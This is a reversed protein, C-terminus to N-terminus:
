LKYSVEEGAEASIEAKWREREGAGICAAGRITATAANTCDQVNTSHARAASNCRHMRTCATRSSSVHMMAQFRLDTTQRKTASSSCPRRTYALPQGRPHSYVLSFESMTDLM